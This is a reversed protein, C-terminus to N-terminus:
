PRNGTTPGSPDQTRYAALPGTLAASYQASLSASLDDAYPSLGADDREAAAIQAVREGLRDLASRVTALVLRSLGGATLGAARDTFTIDQLLGSHDLTVTVEERPSTVVVRLAEIQRQMSEAQAVQAQARAGWSDILAMSRAFGEEYDPVPPPTASM